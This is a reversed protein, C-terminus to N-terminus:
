MSHISIPKMTTSATSTTGETPHAVHEAPDPDEVEAKGDERDEGEQQRDGPEVPVAPAIQSITIRTPWPTPPAISNALEEAMRVSAKGASWRPSSQADVVHGDRSREDAEDQTAQQSRDLPMQDEQHRHRDANEARDPGVQLQVVVAHPHRGLDVPEAVDGKGDTQDQDQHADGVAQQGVAAVGHSPGTRDHQGLDEAPM